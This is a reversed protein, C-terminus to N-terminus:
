DEGDRGEDREVDPEDDVRASALLDAVAATIVAAAAPDPEDRALAEAQAEPTAAALRVQARARLTDAVARAIEALAALALQARASSPALDHLRRAITGALTASVRAEAGEVRALDADVPGCTFRLSAAVERIPAALPPASLAVVMATIGERIPSRLRTVPGSATPPAVVSRLTGDLALLLHDEIPAGLAWLACRLGDGEDHVRLHARRRITGWDERYYARGRWVVKEIRERAQVYLDDDFSPTFPAPAWGLAGRTFRALPAEDDDPHFCELLALFLAESPYPGDYTLRRVGQERALTALLNLIATGGGPPIRSPEVVTPLGDVHAWDVATMATLPTADHWLRDIAGWPTERGARPEIAIWSRDPLRVSAEALTGDPRWVLDASPRGRRDHHVVRRAGM